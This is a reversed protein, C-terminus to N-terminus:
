MGVRTCPWFLAMPDWVWPTTQGSCREDRMVFCDSDGLTIAPTPFALSWCTRRPTLTPNPFSQIDLAVRFSLLGYFGLSVCPLSSLLTSSILAMTLTKDEPSPPPPYIMCTQYFYLRHHSVDDNQIKSPPNAIAVLTVM